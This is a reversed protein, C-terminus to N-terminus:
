LNGGVEDGIIKSVTPAINKPNQSPKAIANKTIQFIKYYDLYMGNCITAIHLKM